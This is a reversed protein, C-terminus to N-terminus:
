AITYPDEPEAASPKFGRCKNMFFSPSCITKKVWKARWPITFAALMHLMRRQPLVKKISSEVEAFSKQHGQRIRKVEFVYWGLSIKVPGELVNPKAGFIAQNLVTEHYFGPILGRVFGHESHIPQPLSSDKAVAAFSRGAAIERKAKEAAAKSKTQVIYLDRQQPNKFQLKHIDYYRRLDAPTIQAGKRVFLERIHEGDLTTQIWRKFDAETQGTELLYKEYEGFSKYGERIDQLYRQELAHKSLAVGAEEAGHIVWEGSIWRQAAAKLLREYRKECRAKFSGGEVSLGEEKAKAEEASAKAQLRAVCAKFEPPVIAVRIEAPETGVEVSALHALEAGTLKHNGVRAVVASPAPTILAAPKAKGQPATPKSATPDHHSASGCGAISAIMLLLLAATCLPGRASSLRNGHAPSHRYTTHQRHM